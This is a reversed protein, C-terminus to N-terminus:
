VPVATVVVNDAFSHTRRDYAGGCTVLVLAPPGTTRFLEARDLATKPASRTSQVAYTHASGDASTVVVRTGPDVQALRTFPGTQGDFSVHAALVVSGAATGPAAGSAWWAVAAASDPLDLGGGVPDTTRAEVMAPQAVGPVLVAVPRRAESARLADLTAPASDLLDSDDTPSPTASAVPAPAAPSSAASSTPGPSAATSSSAAGCGTLLGASLVLAPGVPRRRIV